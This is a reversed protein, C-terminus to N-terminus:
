LSVLCVDCEERTDGVVALMEWLPPLMGVAMAGWAGRVDLVDEGSFGM